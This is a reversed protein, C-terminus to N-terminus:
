LYHWLQLSEQIKERVWERIKEREREFRKKERGSKFHHHWLISLTFFRVIADKCHSHKNIAYMSTKKESWLLLFSLSLPSLSSSSSIFFQLGCVLEFVPRLISPASCRDAPIQLLERVREDWQKDREKERKMEEKNGRFSSLSLSLSLPPHICLPPSPLSSCVLLSLFSPSALCGSKETIM